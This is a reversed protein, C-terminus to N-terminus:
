KAVIAVVQLQVQVVTHLVSQVVRTDVATKVLLAIMATVTAQVHTVIELVLRAIMAVMHLASQVVRTDVATKALPAIMATATHRAVPTVMLKQLVLKLSHVRQAHLARPMPTQLASNQVVVVATKRQSSTQVQAATVPVRLSALRQPPKIPLHHAHSAAQSRKKQLARTQNALLQCLKEENL